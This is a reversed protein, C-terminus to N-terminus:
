EHEVKRKYKQTAIIPSQQESHSSLDYRREAWHWGGRFKNVARPSEEEKNKVACWGERFNKTTSNEISEANISQRACYNHSIATTRMGKEKGADRTQGNDLTSKSICHFGSPLSLPIIRNISESSHKFHVETNSRARSKIYKDIKVNVNLDDVSIPINKTRTTIKEEEGGAVNFPYSVHKNKQYDLSMSTKIEHKMRMDCKVEPLIM